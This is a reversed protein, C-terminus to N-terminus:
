GIPTLRILSEFGTRIESSTIMDEDTISYSKLM